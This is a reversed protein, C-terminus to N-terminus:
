SAQSLARNVGIREKEWVESFHLYEKRFMEWDPYFEVKAARAPVRTREDPSGESEDRVLVFTQVKSGPPGQQKPQGAAVESASVAPKAAAELDPTPPEWLRWKRPRREADRVRRFEAQVHEVWELDGGGEVLCLRDLSKVEMLMLKVWLNYLIGRLVNVHQRLQQTLGVSPMKLHAIICTPCLVLPAPISLLGKPFNSDIAVTKILALHTPRLNGLRRLNKARDNPGRLFLIHAGYALSHTEHYVQRCSQLLPLGVSTREFTSECRELSPTFVYSYIKNRIEGPLGLFTLRDPIQSSEAPHEIEVFTQPDSGKAILTTERPDSILLGRV